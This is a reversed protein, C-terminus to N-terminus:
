SIDLVIPVCDLIVSCLEMTSTRRQISCVSDSMDFCQIHIPMSVRNKLRNKRVKSAENCMNSDPSQQSEEPSQISKTPSKGTRAKRRIDRARCQEDSLLGAIYVGTIVTM